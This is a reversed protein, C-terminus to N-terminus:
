DDDLKIDLIYADKELALPTYLMFTGRFEATSGPRLRRKHRENATFLFYIMRSGMKEDVATIRYPRDYRRLDDVSKVVARLLVPKSLLADFRGDRKIAETSMLGSFFADDLSTDGEEGHLAGGALLCCLLAGIASSKKLATFPM